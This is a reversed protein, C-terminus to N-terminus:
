PYTMKKKPTKMQVYKAIIAVYAICKEIGTEQPALKTIMLGITDPKLGSKLTTEVATEISIDQNDANLQEKFYHGKDWLGQQKPSLQQKQKDFVTQKDQQMIPNQSSSLKVPLYKESIEPPEYRRRALISQGFELRFWQWVTQYKSKQEIIEGFPEVKGFGRIVWQGNNKGIGDIQSIPPQWYLLDPYNYSSASKNESILSLRKAEVELYEQDLLKQPPEQKAVVGMIAGAMSAITDTDSGLLNVAGILGEVPNDRYVYSLFSALLATKTGSGMSSKQFGGISELMEPYSSDRSPNKLCMDAVLLDNKLERISDAIAKDITQQSEKEWIPLWQTALDSDSHIVDLIVPLKEVISYWDELGPIRFNIFTDRLCLAHFVSGVIARGHGHTTITNRIVDKITENERTEKVKSWVHPQIRMAAGNGGSDLYRGFNTNYFNSNWQVQNKRLNDAATKTGTGAGLSYCLWVPIEVKSFVEIDFTGDGRISRSTALRLQTDDSYCGVPLDVSVGFEGGIRRTWPILSDVKSKGKTRIKLSSETALETIFGLADGYGAWLMSLKISDEISM